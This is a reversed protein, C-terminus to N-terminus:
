VTTLGTEDNVEIKALMTIDAFEIRLELDDRWGPLMVRLGGMESPLTVGRIRADRHIRLVTQTFGGPAM